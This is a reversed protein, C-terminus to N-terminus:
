RVDEVVVREGAGRGFTEPSYMEEAKPPPVVFSGPTTARATYVYEYSGAPLLSAFAEAREDRLNHHEYWTARWWSFPSRGNAERKEDDVRPTGALAANLAEFGAPMPDVLAVHHRESPAVMSVRIRVSAGAKVHWVGQTDRTVDTPKDVAEYRRSVVFGRDISPVTLSAPAYRLGLRYYLRGPGEKGVVLDGGGSSALEPMPVFAEVRDTNRGRFAHESATVSGLWVRAVFNPAVKEFRQFYADLALLVFADEQTNGWHGKKRNGLLGAVVKPVLENKPEIELLSMLVLADTRHASNLLLYDSEGYTSTFHAAGATEVVRNRFSLLIADSQAKSSADGALTPLLWALAELSLHEVGEEALLRQAAKADPEGLRRLVFLAFARLSRRAEKSYYEPIQADINRLYRSVGERMSADVVFGKAKAVSLALGVHVTLYPWPRDTWFGFGGSLKDQRRALLALDREVGARLKDASPLSSAAFAALMDKLAAISLLRSAIQENCDFPYRQLYLVADTLAFLATSSTGIELGGFGKEVDDPVKLSQLVAGEDVVGYTAFAETTNPSWVPMQVTAADSFDGAALAFAVRAEGPDRAAFALRVEVRDNPPVDFARGTTADSAKPAAGFAANDARAALRVRMKESTQNQVVVPLELRDGYNLFRPASPRLLVPLRATLTAEGLGFHDKKDWAVATVRYRTTNDPMKFSVVAHGSADTPVRAAFVALPDFNSRLAIPAAIRGDGIPDKAATVLGVMGFDAVERLASARASAAPAAGGLRGHGQGFGQGSGTGAGHGITGIAGLGIGEGRGGGGEGVGSLGLGGAGFADGIADGWLNGGGPAQGLRGRSEEDPALMVYARSERLSTSTMGSRMFTALPDAIRHSALALVSEDVVVVAVEAAFPKKDSGTVDVNVRTEEGPAVAVKEPSVAVSLAHEVAPVSLSVGRSAFAPRAKLNPDLDGRANRRPEQGVLSLTAMVSPADGAEIPVRISQVREALAIKQVRRKIGGAVELIGEAPAFPSVVLLEATEGIKYSEKDATLVLESIEQDRAVLASKGVSLVSIVTRSRRGKEDTVDAVVTYEGAEKTPLACAKVEEAASVVSCSAADLEKAEHKRSGRSPATRYSRLEVKRGAILAGDLGVVVLKPEIADGARVFPKDAKLGVYVSAPHVLLRTSTAWSQRNVDTITAAAAVNYAFPEDIGDFDIRLGHAGDAGTHGKHVARPASSGHPRTTRGWDGFASRFTPRSQGFQYEKRNPPEFTAEERAVNWDVTASQLGGGAFYKASARATAFGGVVHPGDSTRTTVEYEPRRFEEIRFSHSEMLDTAELEVNAHGLNANKPVAFTVVFGGAEDITVPGKAMEVGRADRAVFRGQRQSALTIDAGRVNGVNRLLGKIHVTEGPRYLGRDDFAYAATTAPPKGANGRFGYLFTSDAGRRAVLTDISDDAPQPFTGLRALGDDGTSTGRGHTLFSVTAGSIATSRALDSVLAVVSGDRAEHASLGLATVQLWQRVWQRQWPDKYPRKSEVIAVVHGFGDKLAPTLDVRTETTSDPRADLTLDRDVVLEGPPTREKREYDWDRRYAVFRGYDEPRVRFLRLRVTDEARSYVSLRAGGAPDVIGQMQREAFLRPVFPVVSFERLVDAALAQGFRDKLGSKVTVKYRGVKWEGRLYLNSGSPTIKLGEPKPSVDVFREEFSDEDLPTTFRLDAASDPRCEGNCSLATVEMAGHTTFEFRQAEKTTRPGEASPTGSPFEVTVVTNPPLTKDTKWFVRRRKKLAADKGADQGAPRAGLRDLLESQEVEADTALRSKQELGEAKVVVKSVIAAADVSQDFEAFYLPTRSVTVGSPESRVLRPAPTAFTTREGKALRNGALSKTGEPVEVVFETARPLEREPQFVVTQTGLWRFEGKQPPTLKFPAEGAALAAQTALAVMPESFTVSVNPAIGVDGEPSRRVVRLGTTDHTVAGVPSPAAPFPESVTRGPRPPPPSDGRRHFTTALGGDTAAQPPLRGLLEAVEGPPMVDGTVRPPAAPKERDADSLRFGLKPARSKAVVSGADVGEGAGPKKEGGCGVAALAACVFVRALHGGRPAVKARRSRFPPVTHPFHM